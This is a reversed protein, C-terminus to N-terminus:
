SEYVSVHSEVVSEVSMSVSAVSLVHIVMEIGLYLRKSSDLFMKLIEISQPLDKEKIRNTVKELRRLFEKYQAALEVDPIQIINSAIKKGNSVFTKAELSGIMSSGRLKVNKALRQLDLLPRLQEVLSTAQDDFVCVSLEHSLREALKKLRSTATTVVNM